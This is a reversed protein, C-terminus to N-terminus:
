RTGTAVAPITRLYAWLAKVETDNLHAFARPMVESIESGDPRRSERLAKIFDAETWQALRGSAHPTLNAAPPWDPPGIDIKGGAFNAGHCGTCGAALYRGYDATLGPLVEDPKVARHDIVEAALKIKGALMLVRAVPGVKLPVSDRDVPPVSKLYAVLDGMDRTSFQVYDTAPMLFLGRGDAGVGHRIAREWDADGYGAALGGRGRTLNPGYLRGMAPDDVVKAGALDAGHCDVCGRTAALHRGRAIADADTPVPVPQVAVAFTQNLRTGSKWYVVGLVAAVAVVLGLVGYGLFKLLKKM